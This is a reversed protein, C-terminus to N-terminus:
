GQKDAATTKGGPASTQESPAPAAPQSAPGTNTPTGANPPTQAPTWHFGAGGGGALTAPSVRVDADNSRTRDEVLLQKLARAEPTDSLQLLEFGKGGESLSIGDTGTRILFTGPPAAGAQRDQPLDGRAGGGSLAGLGLLFAIGSPLRLWRPVFNRILM